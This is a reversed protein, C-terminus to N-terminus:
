IINFLERSFTRTQRTTEEFSIIKREFGKRLFALYDELTKKMMIYQMKKESKIRILDDSKELINKNNNEKIANIEDNLNKEIDNLQAKIKILREKEEELKEVQIKSNNASIKKNMTSKLNQLNQSAKQIEKYNEIKEMYKERTKDKTQQKIFKLFTEDNLRECLLRVQKEKSLDISCKDVLEFGFTNKKDKFIPFNLTFQHKLNQIIEEINNRKDNFLKLKEM